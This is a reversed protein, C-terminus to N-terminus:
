IKVKMSMTKNVFDTTTRFRSYESEMRVPKEGTNDYWVTFRAKQPNPDNSKLHYEYTMSNDTEDQKFPAGLWDQIETQNPLDDLDQGSIDLEVGRSALSWGTECLTRTASDIATKDFFDPNIITNLKPDFRVNMLKYQDDIRDFKLEVRIEDEPGPDPGAKELIFVMSLEVGDEKMTTPSTGAIWLIDKERLVPSNFNLEASEAFELSFNTDFECFQDKVEVVRTILCGNLLLALSCATAGLLAKRGIQRVARGPAARDRNRISTKL